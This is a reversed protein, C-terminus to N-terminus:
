LASRHSKNGLCMREYGVVTELFITLWYNKSQNIAARFCMMGHIMYTIARLIILRNNLHFIRIVQSDLIFFPHRMFSAGREMEYVLLGNNKFLPDDDENM